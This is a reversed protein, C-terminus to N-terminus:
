LSDHIQRKKKELSRRSEIFNKEIFQNIADILLKRDIDEITSDNNITEFLKKRTNPISFEWLNGSVDVPWKKTLEKYKRSGKRTIIKWDQTFKLNAVEYDGKNWTKMKFLILTDQLTSLIIKGTRSVMHKEDLRISTQPNQPQEARGKSNLSNEQNKNM